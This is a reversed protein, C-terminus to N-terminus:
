NCNEFSVTGLPSGVVAGRFAFAPDAGTTIIPTGFGGPPPQVLLQLGLPPGLRPSTAVDCIIHGNVTGGAGGFNFVAQSRAGIVMDGNVTNGPRVRVTSNQFVGISENIATNNRFEVLSMNFVALEGNLVSNQFRVSSNNGVQLRGGDFAANRIEAHGTRAIFGNGQFSDLGGDQRLVSGDVITFVDGGAGNVLNNGGLLRALGGRFIGLAACISNSSQNSQIMPNGQMRVEGRETALVACREESRILPNNLIEAFSGHIALIATDSGVDITSNQILVTAGREAAIGGPLTLGDIVIRHAGDLTIRGTITGSGGLLTVDDRTLNVAENCQGTITLIVRRAAGSGALADAITDGQDCEVLEAKDGGGVQQSLQEVADQLADIQAQLVQFPVGKGPEALAGPVIGTLAFLSSIFVVFSAKKLRMRM